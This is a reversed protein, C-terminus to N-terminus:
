HNVRFFQFPTETSFIPIQRDTNAAETDLMRIQKSSALLKIYRPIFPQVIGIYEYSEPSRSRLPTGLLAEKYLNWRSLIHM